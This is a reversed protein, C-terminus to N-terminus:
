LISCASVCKVPPEPKEELSSVPFSSDFFRLSLQAVNKVDARTTEMLIARKNEDQLKKFLIIKNEQKEINVHIICKDEKSLFKGFTKELKLAARLVQMNNKYNEILFSFFIERCAAIKFREKVIEKLIDHLKDPHLFFSESFCLLLRAIQTNALDNVYDQLIEKYYKDKPYQLALHNMLFIALPLDKTRLTGAIDSVVEQYQWCLYFCPDTLDVRLQDPVEDELAEFSRIIKVKHLDINESLYVLLRNERM